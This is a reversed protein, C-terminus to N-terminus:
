KPNYSTGATSDGTDLLMPPEHIRRAAPSRTHTQRSGREKAASSSLAEEDGDDHPRGHDLGRWEVM